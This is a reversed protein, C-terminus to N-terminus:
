GWLDLQLENRWRSEVVKDLLVVVVQVGWSLIVRRVRSLRYSFIREERTLYRSSYPKMLYTKTFVCWWCQRLLTFGRHWQSLTRSRSFGHHPHTGAGWYPWKFRFGIGQRLCRHVHVQLREWGHCLPHNQLLGQLQLLHVKLQCTGQLGRAKWRHNWRHSSLEVKSILRRCTTELRTWHHPVQPARGRKKKQSLKKWKESPQASATTHCEGHM